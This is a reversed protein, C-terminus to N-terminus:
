WWPTNLLGALMADARSMYGRGTPRRRERPTTGCCSTRAEVWGVVVVVLQQLLM